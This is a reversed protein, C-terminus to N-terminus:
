ASGDGLPVLAWVLKGDPATFCGWKVAEGEVIRLGRGLDVLRATDIDTPDRMEPPDPDGDRVAVYVCTGRLALWIEMETGAQELSHNVLESVVRQVRHAADAHGWAVCASFALGRAVRPTSPDVPLHARVRRGPLPGAVIAAFALDRSEYVPILERWASRALREALRGTPACWVLPVGPDAQAARQLAYLMSISSGDTEDVLGGLDVVVASPCEVLCKFVTSRVVDKARLTLEGDFEVVIVGARLDTTVRGSVV